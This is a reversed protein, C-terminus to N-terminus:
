RSRVPPSCASGARRRARGQHAAAVARLRARRRSRRVGGAQLAVRRRRRAALGGTVTGIEFFMTFSSLAAAREHDPTRNVTLAMLSPYQFAMGVGISSAALWLAWPQAFAALGALAVAMTTFAITVSRRPGLREPLRAGAIRLVLCVVSYAAFLGGSGGM